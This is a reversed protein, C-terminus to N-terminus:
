WKASAVQATSIPGNKGASLGLVRFGEGVVNVQSAKWKSVWYNFKPQSYSKGAFFESKTLGSAVWEAVEVFMAEQLNM